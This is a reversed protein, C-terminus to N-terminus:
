AGVFNLEKTGIYIDVGNAMLQGLLALVEAPPSVAVPVIILRKMYRTLLMRVLNRWSIDAVSRFYVFLTRLNPLLSPSDALAAFLSTATQSDAAGIKFLLALSPMLCLCEHLRMSDPAWGLTLSQLPAASRQVFALLDDYSVNVMSLSLTELAPLSLHCLVRDNCADLFILRRM